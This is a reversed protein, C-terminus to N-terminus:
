REPGDCIRKPKIAGQQQPNNNLQFNRSIYANERAALFMQEAKTVQITNFQTRQILRSREWDIADRAASGFTPSNAPFNHCRLESDAHSEGFKIGLDAVEANGTPTTGSNLPPSARRAIIELGSQPVLSLFSEGHSQTPWARLVARKDEPLLKSFPDHRDINTAFYWTNRLWHTQPM